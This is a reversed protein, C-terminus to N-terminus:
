MRLGRCQGQRENEAQRQAVSAAAREGQRLTATMGAVHDLEPRQDPKVSPATIVGLRGGARLMARVGEEGFRQEVAAGFARLEGALREDKQVAQWM